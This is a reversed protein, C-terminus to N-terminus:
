CLISKAFKTINLKPFNTSVEQYLIETYRNYALKKEISMWSSDMLNNVKDYLKFLRIEKNKRFILKTEKTFSEFTMDNIGRIIDNPLWDPLPLTTDELLDHYLLILCWLSHTYSPTKGDHKRFAKSPKVPFLDHARIIYEIDKQEM